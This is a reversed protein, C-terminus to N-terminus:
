KTTGDVPVQNSCAPDFNLAEDDDRGRRLMADLMITVRTGVKQANALHVRSREFSEQNKKDWKELDQM